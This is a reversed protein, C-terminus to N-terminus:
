DTNIIVSIGLGTKPCFRAPRDTFAPGMKEHRPVTHCMELM